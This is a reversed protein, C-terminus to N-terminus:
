DDKEFPYFVFVIIAGYDDDYSREIQFKWGLEKFINSKFVVPELPDYTFQVRIEHGYLVHFDDDHVLPFKVEPVIGLHSEFIGQIYSKMEKLIAKKQLLLEDFSTNLENIGQKWLDVNMQGGGMSQLHFRM